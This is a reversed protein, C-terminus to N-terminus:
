EHSGGSCGLSSPASSTARPANATTSPRRYLPTRRRTREAFLHRKSVGADAPAAAAGGRARGLPRDREGPSSRIRARVRARVRRANRAHRACMVWAVM